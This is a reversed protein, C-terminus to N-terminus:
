SGDPAPPQSGLSPPSILYIGLAPDVAATGPVDLRVNLSGGSINAASYRDTWDLRSALHAGWLMWVSEDDARLRAVLVKEVRDDELTTCLSAPKPGSPPDPFTAGWASFLHPESRDDFRMSPDDSILVTDTPTLSGPGEAALAPSSDRDRDYDTLYDFAHYGGIACDYYVAITYTTGPQANDIRVMLPLSDGERYASNDPTLDSFVWEETLDAWQAFRFVTPQTTQAPAPTPSPGPTPQEPQAGAGGGRSSCSALAFLIVVILTAIAVGILFLYPLGPPRIPPTISGNRFSIWTWGSGGDGRRGIM